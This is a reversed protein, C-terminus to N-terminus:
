DSTNPYNDKGVPNAPGGRQGLIGGVDVNQARSEKVAERYPAQEAKKRRLIYTIFVRELTARLATSSPYRDLDSALDHQEGSAGSKSGGAVADYVSGEGPAAMQDADLEKHRGVDENRLGRAEEGPGAGRVGYGLSSPTADDASSSQQTPVRQDVPVSSSLANADAM